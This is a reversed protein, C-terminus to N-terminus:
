FVSAHDPDCDRGQYNQRDPQGDHQGVQKGPRIQGKVWAFIMGKNGYQDRGPILFLVQGGQQFSQDTLMM